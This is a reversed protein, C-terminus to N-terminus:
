KKDLTMQEVAQLEKRLILQDIQWSKAPPRISLSVSFSHSFTNLQLISNFATTRVHAGPEAKPAMLSKLSQIRNESGTLQPKTKNKLAKPAANKALKRLPLALQKRHRSQHM